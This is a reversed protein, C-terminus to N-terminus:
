YATKRSIKHARHLDGPIANRKYNKAEISSWHNPIKFEKVVVSTEIIGNKIIPNLEKTLKINM